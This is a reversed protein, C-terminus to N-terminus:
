IECGNVQSWLKVNFLFVEMGLKFNELEVEGMVQQITQCHHSRRPQTMKLVALVFRRM